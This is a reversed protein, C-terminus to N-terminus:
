SHSVQGVRQSLLNGSVADDIAVCGNHGACPPGKVVCRADVGPGSASVVEESSTLGENM